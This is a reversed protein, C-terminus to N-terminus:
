KCTKKRMRTRDIINEAMKLYSGAQQFTQAQRGEIVDILTGIFQSAHEKINYSIIAIPAFCYDLQPSSSICAVSIDEPTRIGSKALREMARFCPMGDEVLLADPRRELLTRCSAEFMKGAPDGIESCLSLPEYGFEECLKLYPELKGGGEHSWHLLAIRRHGKAKFEEFAQRMGMKFDFFVVPFGELPREGRIVVPVKRELLRDRIKSNTYLVGSNILMGDVMHTLALDICELEKQPNWKTLMSLLHYGHAESMDILESMLNSHIAGCIYGLCKSNGNSLSRAMYNPSYELRKVIREVKKVTKKSIKQAAAKGNLVFSVTSKSVGALRAIETITTAKGQM